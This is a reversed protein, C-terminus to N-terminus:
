AMLIADINDGTDYDRCGSAIITPKTGPGQGLYGSSGKELVCNSLTISMTGPGDTRYQMTYASGMRAVGVIITNSIVYDGDEGNTMFIGGTLDGITTGTRLDIFCQDITGGGGNMKVCELHDGVGSNLGLGRFYCRTLTGGNMNGIQRDAPDLFAVNTANLICGIHSTIGGNRAVTASEDLTGNTLNLTVFNSDDDKGNRINYDAVGDPISATFNSIDVSYTGSGQLYIPKNIVWGDLPSVYGTIDLENTNNTCNVPLSADNVGLVKTPASTPGATTQLDWVATLGADSVSEPYSTADSQSLLAAKADFVLNMPGAVLKKNDQLTASAVTFSLSVPDPRIRLGARLTAPAATFTLNVPDATMVASSAASLYADAVTLALNLPDATLTYNTPSNGSVTLDATALAFALLIPDATIGYSSPQVPQVTNNKKPKQCCWRPLTEIWDKLKM